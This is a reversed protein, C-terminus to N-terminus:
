GTQDSGNSSQVFRPPHQTHFAALTRLWHAVDDPTAYRGASWRRVMREDRVILVRETRDPVM